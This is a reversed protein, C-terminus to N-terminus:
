SKDEEHDIDITKPEEKKPEGNQIFVIQPRNDTKALGSTHNQEPKDYAYEMLMKRDSHNKRAEKAVMRLFDMESGFEDIIANIAMLKGRDKKVKTLGARTLKKQKTTNTVKTGPKRGNSRRGDYTKDKSM